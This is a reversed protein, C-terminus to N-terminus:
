RRGNMTGLGASPQRQNASATQASPPTLLPIPPDASIPSPYPLPLPLSSPLLPSNPDKDTRDGMGWYGGIGRDGKKCGWCVIGNRNGEVLTLARGAAWEGVGHPF